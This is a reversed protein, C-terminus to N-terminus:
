LRSTWLRILMPIIEDL